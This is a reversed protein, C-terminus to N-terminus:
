ADRGTDQAAYGPFIMAAEASTVRRADHLTEQWLSGCLNCRRLFVPGAAIVALQEFREFPAHYGVQCDLCLGTGSM